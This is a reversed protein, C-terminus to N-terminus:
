LIRRPDKVLGKISTNRELTRSLKSSRLKVTNAGVFSAKTCNAGPNSSMTFLITADLAKVVSSNDRLLKNYSSVSNWTCAPPSTEYRPSSHLLSSMITDFPFLRVSHMSFVFNWLPSPLVLMFMGRTKKGLRNLEAEFPIMWMTFATRSGAGLVVGGGVLFGVRLGVRFGVWFGVGLGVRFGVFLRAGDLSGEIDGVAEMIGDLSGEINGVTEMIGDLSGEINGVIELSGEINGVIEMIGDTTGEVEGDLEGLSAGDLSGEIDGVIEMCGVVEGDLEGLLAGVLSGEINGVTEMCGDIRGDLEGLSAGDDLSGVILGVSDGVKVNAGVVKKGVVVKAGVVV